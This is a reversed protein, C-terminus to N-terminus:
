YKKRTAIQVIFGLFFLVMIAAVDGLNWVSQIYLKDLFAVTVDVLKLLSKMDIAPVLKLLNVYLLGAGFASTLIMGSAKRFIVLLLFIVAGVAAAAIYDAYAAPLSAVIDKVAAIDALYKEFVANGVVACAGFLAEPFTYRSPIALLAGIVVGVIWAPLTFVKAILPTLYLYGGIFGIGFMLVFRILPMLRKGALLLIAGIAMLVIVFLGSYVGNLMSKVNDFGQTFWAGGFFQTHIKEINNAVLTSM